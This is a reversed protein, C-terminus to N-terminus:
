GHSLGGGELYEVGALLTKVNDRAAGLMRNCPGCLLGRVTDTDHCHDVELQKDPVPPNGCIACVGNQETLRQDYEGPRLGYRQERHCDKCRSQCGRTRTRNLAFMSAPLDRKCTLCTVTEPLEIMPREARLRNKNRQHEKWCEKCAAMALTKNRKLPYFDSLPQVQERKKCQKSQEM